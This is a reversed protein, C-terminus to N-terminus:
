AIDAMKEFTRVRVLDDRKVAYGLKQAVEASVHCQGLVIQSIYSRTIGLERAVEANSKKRCQAIIIARMQEETIEEM